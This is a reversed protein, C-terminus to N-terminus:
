GERERIGPAGGHGQACVEGSPTVYQPMQCVACILGNKEYSELPREGSPRHNLNGPESLLEPTGLIRKVATFANDFSKAQITLLELQAELQDVRDQVVQYEHDQVFVAQRVADNAQKIGARELIDAMESLLIVSKRLELAKRAALLERNVLLALKRVDLWGRNLAALLEPAKFKTVTAVEYQRREAQQIAQLSMRLTKTGDGSPIALVGTQLNSEMSRVFAASSV